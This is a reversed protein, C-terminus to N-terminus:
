RRRKWERLSVIGLEPAPDDDLMSIFEVAHGDPDEFYIAVAPMWAIVVAEETPHGYLDRPTVDLARLHAPAHAVEDRGRQLAFHSRGRAIPPDPCAPGWLGLLHSGRQGIWLFTVDREPFDAAIECGVVRGYFVASRRRDAVALHVEFIGQSSVAM